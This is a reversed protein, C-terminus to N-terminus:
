TKKKKIIGNTIVLVCFLHPFSSLPNTKLHDSQIAACTQKSRRNNRPGDEKEKKVRLDRTERECIILSSTERQQCDLISSM